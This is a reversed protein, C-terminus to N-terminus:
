LCRKVTAATVAHFLTFFPVLEWSHLVRHFFSHQMALQAAATINPEVRQFPPDSNHRMPEAVGWFVLIIVM